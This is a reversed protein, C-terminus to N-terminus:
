RDSGIELAVAYARRRSVGLQRAVEDAADRTSAGAALAGAVAEAVDADGPPADPPAGGLVIVIEGKPPSSAWVEAEALTGRFVEEHLKTLERAVAVSRDVGCVGVLDALTAAVRHPSEFVVTTREEAALRALREARAAGKRPLFGEMCWRDTPLGSVVLAAVPAAPGPVVTVEHGADVARRVLLAGPDSVGPTGADTVVAVLRGEALCGLVEDAARDETHADVRLLRAGTVGAHQLLRGTRRTDECAVIHAAALTEVARPALDGLNGIPTAVLALRGTM